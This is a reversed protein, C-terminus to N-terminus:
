QTLPRVAVNGKMVIHRWEEAGIGGLHQILSRLPSQQYSLLILLHAAGIAAWAGAMPFEFPSLDPLWTLGFYLGTMLALGGVLATWPAGGLGRVRILILGMSCFERWNLDTGWNGYTAASLPKLRPPM